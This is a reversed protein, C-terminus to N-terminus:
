WPPVTRESMLSTCQSASGGVDGGCWESIVTSHIHTSFCRQSADTSNPQRGSAGLEDWRRQWNATGVIVREAARRSVTPEDVSGRRPATGQSLSLCHSLSTCHALFLIVYLLCRSPSSKAEPGSWLEGPVCWMCREDCISEWKVSEARALLEQEALITCPHHPSM